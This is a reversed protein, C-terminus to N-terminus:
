PSLTRGPGIERRFKQSAVFYTKCAWGIADGQEEGTWAVEAFNVLRDRNDSYISTRKGKVFSAIEISADPGHAHEYIVIVRNPDRSPARVMESTSLRSRQGLRLGVVIRPQEVRSVLQCYPQGTVAIGFVHVELFLFSAERDTPLAVVSDLAISESESFAFGASGARDKTVRSSPKRM